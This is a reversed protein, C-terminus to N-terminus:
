TECEAVNTSEDSKKAYSGVGCKVEFILPYTAYPYNEPALRNEIEPVGISLLM